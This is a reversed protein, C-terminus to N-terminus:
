WRLVRHCTPIRRHHHYFIVATLVIFVPIFPIHWSMLPTHLHCINRRVFLARSGSVCLCNRNDEIGELVTFCLTDSFTLCGYDLLRASVIFSLRWTSHFFTKRGQCEVKDEIREPSSLSSSTTLPQYLYKRGIRRARGVLSYTCSIWYETDALRSLIDIKRKSLTSM